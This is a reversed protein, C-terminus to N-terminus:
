SAQWAAALTPQLADQIASPLVNGVGSPVNYAAMASVLQDVQNNLLVLAGAEINDLQYNAGSYWNSVTVKDDTGAVSIQLNNGARSFWLDEISVDDFQATDVSDAHTDYNSITISGDGAAFEYTDNGADGSLYDGMGAGGRLIDDGNGGYLYDRGDGGSLTDNGNQGYIRDDGADGSVVDDGEQGQVNDNGEGGSLTDNGDAGYLTDNGGLGNLIDDAAYGYLSDNAESSQQVLAKVADVNWRTGDAFEIANLAYASDADQHFYSQVTIVEGTGQITLQLNNSSRKAIVDSPAIGDLFRLRDQSNDTDYNSITTNGDNAAYVYTDSGADGSLYDGTGKGGRLIDDGNGGYLYDRGDGGNLIDNGNQGYIRDDGADGSVIDDGEQGQLNDSGEGGSLTDNGDAGYLTDNGGLGDLTDDEAYGYLSDNAESGQQVLAKVAEVNWRTGDAFEISNLAYASGGDQHFYSQVTIVEDTSQVLLQLSTSSRKAIVDAPTIGALFRLTDQSNDRDYNSITTNGDGVAFEYTDSGADGSLYDGMGAGGRLIDDGNGGYLYDRGDGGNLIDNGNQGYIRDDGADGSVIDDGEQGQLNDSGEGGSLTDNGDAGYLTDNGGLGDLTDDEAYGYLSDNSDSSEQVLSKITDVDWRTGDAFEIANLAYASDADQHFYSQVTIVEGTSQIILQLHTSSRKAIVDAPAIGALFRLTDQSSDRDYNSITTNGDGVAFEYTDSGADGSLYDGMGAGGRLIDDGNGGYLYDRGDGGNLIDNGNQGYIRDDGADGSVIDDGEQGQLNDSGEGGSLTDNGDAGYLTDNGGLGDLTDDEAYGYLSDNSDSSEQVLSKITDVDWRTGDAFEIANLAYASDADQHFYSQVTIVEGTSQIILQLHTSSRKAVVDSPVIGALFRLVDQSNDTDYNSIKTNGDGTAFEYTDSGADGSLYDGAGTGGRLTDDGNGGYLYDRGDGGDLIDNGNQGYIRDDGADGSVIDDGEQGQVNDSGEGGSLTDNGDAGYLTDNGSLGHLYDDDASGYLRDAGETGGATIIKVDDYNWRTGDTFEIANLAYGGLGDNHFYSQVTVAEGTSQITLVLNTSSRTAVVDSVAIGALFRLVDQSGEGVDYNSIITNGDGAAFEYIDSGTDGSLYDGTGAGGRLTDDGSGGYLYDRGDGGDLIDNGDQGYIRDDGANGFVIDDGDQGQVSDNGEGGSLTDNGAAGYLRDNGGLGDLTNNEADGYLSDDAESGQLVLGKVTDVDWRTGDTFEIANLAYVSGGDQHFYSQVTIVDGTSQIVLQLNSSVRKAVVDSPVIGALFRLVDQSNDTGYNSITTNGDGAAFEYIDSGADGSLYDGAGTGGRLTDDGSGGYLYDRGDGGNLVDNGDQGYIRDDGDGGSLTDNGTAGHLTDNGGLGDLTDNEAYGYLSDNAISAQQVLAKVADVDWRTGDTFEIANLAYASGGDQHFYSQVTIVEDTSQITLKLHTGSRKAVVDSATIGVLFRLTDQSNDTDYNSITTNGDGAAFEYIDSGADGSLYDGTGTGGRLTDDGDGGYLYDIGDGGSLDDNGAAGYLRDNGSLGNLTDNEAYGYLSDAAESGQQVLAKIVNVDWRTGDSFEIVSLAHASDGDQHFYSHVTIIEGTSQVILQLNTSSRKAVVDSPVIGALFRLTDQSNDTHYNSIATNGDGSKFLYTDNGADGSLYDGTGAGGRLLDNGDGGFLVDRGEGGELVDNGDQGYLYDDGIGALIIDDGGLGKLVSSNHGDIFIESKDNGSTNENNSKVNLAELVASTDTGDVDTSAWNRLLEFGAWGNQEFSAGSYRVLEVLDALAEAPDVSRKAELLNNMESFDHSIEGAEDVALLIHDAYGSLRTQMVLNGYVSERLQEYSNTLLDIQPQSLSIFVQWSGSDIGNSDSSETVDITRGAGTTVGDAKVTVFHGANFRELVGIMNVVKDQEVKLAETEALEESDIPIDEGIGVGGERGIFDSATQGPLMYTLIFGNEEAQTISTKMDSSNAWVSVLGDLIEHQGAYSSQDAFDGVISALEGSISMAERLDRVLGSGKSDPLALAEDTLTVSDTFERYFPNNALDLNGTEGEEGDISLHVSTATQVNGNGLNINNKDANLDISEIGLQTLSSLEEAGSVGDQNLDQWIKVNSFEADQANFLGDNNSDLDTLADFGDVATSGDSKITDVGFLEAGTDITGNGNRDLVFFGDDASVWGTGTKVGDGNHDFVVTGDAGITEIGDGDLDIALPDRRPPTWNQANNFGSNVDDPMIGLPDWGTLADALSGRLDNLFDGVAQNWTDPLIFEAVVAVAAAVAVGAVIPVGGFAAVVSAAIAGAIGGIVAKGLDVSTGTIAANYANYASLGVGGAVIGKSLFKAVSSLRTATSAASSHGALSNAIGQQLPKISNALSQQFAPNNIKSVVAASQQLRAAAAAAATAASKAANNLSVSAAASLDTALQVSAAQFVTNNAVSALQNNNM